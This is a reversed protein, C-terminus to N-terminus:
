LQSRRSKCSLPLNSCFRPRSAHYNRGDFTHWHHRLSHWSGKQSDTPLQQHLPYLAKPHRHQGNASAVWLAGNTYNGLAIIDSRGVNNGDRHAPLGEHPETMTVQIGAYPHNVRSTPRTGAVTYFKCHENNITSRLM